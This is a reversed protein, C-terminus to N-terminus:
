THKIELTSVLHASVTTTRRAGVTQSPSPTLSVATTGPGPVEM